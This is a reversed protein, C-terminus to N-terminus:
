VFNSIIGVVTGVATAAGGGILFNKAAKATGGLLEDRTKYSMILSTWSPAGVGVGDAKGCVYLQQQVPVVHETCTFKNAKSMTPNAFAYNGFMIAQGAGFAGKLDALFGEKQTEDFTKTYPEFDGGESAHVAVPGSGDNVYIQAASKEHVYDKSETSDGDKWEGVVKLEYYMCPTGTVPSMLPQQLQVQGQVSIAGKPDAVQAGRAAADATSVFPAKALRGAKFKQMGGWILALIGALVLIFAVYVM